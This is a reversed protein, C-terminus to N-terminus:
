LRCEKGVRREESRDVLVSRHKVHRRIKEIHLPFNQLTHFDVEFYQKVKQFDNVYDTFLRSFGADAHRLEEFNIWQLDSM